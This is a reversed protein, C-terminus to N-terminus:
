DIRESPDFISYILCGGDSLRARVKIAGYQNKYDRGTLAYDQWHTRNGNGVGKPSLTKILEGSERLVDVGEVKGTYAAPILTVAFKKTDSVPKWLFGENGDQPDKVLCEGTERGPDATSFSNINYTDVPIGPATSVNMVAGGSNRSVLFGDKQPSQLALEEGRGPLFDGVVITGNAPFRIRRVRGTNSFPKVIELTIGQADLFPLALLPEDKAGLLSIPSLRPSQVRGARVTRMRREFCRMTLSAKGSRRPLIAACDGRTGKVYFAHDQLKGFNFQRVTRSSPTVPDLAITWTLRNDAKSVVAADSIGNGNFDAGGIFLDDKAGLRFERPGQDSLVSWLLEGESPRVTALDLSSPGNYFGPVLHDGLRGWDALTRRAGTGTDTSWNLTGDQTVEVLLYESLKSRPSATSLSVASLPISLVATAIARLMPTKM